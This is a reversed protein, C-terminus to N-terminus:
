DKPPRQDIFDRMFQYNTVKDELCAPNQRVLIQPLSNLRIKPSISSLANNVAQLSNLDSYDLHFYSQKRERLTRFIQDYYQNRELEFRLYREPSFTIQASRRDNPNKLLWQKTERAIELSVFSELNDRTLVIKHCYKNNLVSAMTTEDHENFLRFVLEHPKAAAYISNFFALKNLNRKKVDDKTYGAFSKAGVDPRDIGVFHPNYLEGLCVINECANIYSQLLNSGTRM